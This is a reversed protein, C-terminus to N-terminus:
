FCPAILIRAVILLLLAEWFNVRRVGFLSPMVANWAYELIFVVIILLVVIAVFTLVDNSRYNMREPNFMGYDM